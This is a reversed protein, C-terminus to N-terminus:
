MRQERHGHPPESPREPATSKRASTTAGGSISSARVVATGCCSRNRNRLRDAAKLAAMTGAAGGAAAATTHRDHDRYSRRWDRRCPRRSGTPEQLNGTSEQLNQLRSHTRQLTCHTHNRSHGGHGHLTHVPIRRDLGASDPLYAERPYERQCIPASVDWRRSLSSGRTPRPPGERRSAYHPNM